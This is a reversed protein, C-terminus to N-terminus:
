REMWAGDLWDLKAAELAEVSPCDALEGGKWAPAVGVAPTACSGGGVGITPTVLPM